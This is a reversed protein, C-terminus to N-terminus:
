GSGNITIGKTAFVGFKTTNEVKVNEKTAVWHCISVFKCVAVHM